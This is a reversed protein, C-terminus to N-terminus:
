RKKIKFNGGGIEIAKGHLLSDAIKSRSSNLERTFTRRSVGMQKAADEQELGELDMLRIAELEEVKLRNVELNQLPIGRPKFYVAEPTCRVNRPCVPRGRNSVAYIIHL